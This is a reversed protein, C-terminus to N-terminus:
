DVLRIELRKNIKGKNETKTIKIGGVEKTHNVHTGGDAQLDLGVIEVIRVEEIEPPLLNIKTRILDPIAFAKERPLTYVRIPYDAEVAENIKEEISAIREKSLDEMAFDMRARDPYMQGGTVQVGFERFITGCLIHLAKHTRMMRYRFDWDITGVVETGVPPPLCDLTHWVIEDRKNMAIVNGEDQRDKWSMIGRDPMQGGGGPFFVTADLAVEDGEVAVVKASCEFMYSNGHYLL